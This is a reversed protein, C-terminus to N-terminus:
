KLPVEVLDEIRLHFSPETIYKSMAQRPICVAQSPKEKVQLNCDFQEEHGWVRLM